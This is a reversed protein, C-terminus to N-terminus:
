GAARHVPEAAALFTEVDAMLAQGLGSTSGEYAFGRTRMTAHLGGRVNRFLNDGARVPYPTPAAGAPAPSVIATPGIHVRLVDRENHLVLRTGDGRRLVGFATGPVPLEPFARHFTRADELTAGLHQALALVPERFRLTPDYGGPEWTSDTFWRPPPLETAWPQPAAGTLGVARFADALVVLGGALADMGAADLFGNRRLALEGERFLVQLLGPEGAARLWDGAAGGLLAAIMEDGVAPESQWWWGPLGFRELKVEHEFNQGGWQRRRDIRVRPLSGVAEPVHTAATTVPARAPPTPDPDILLGTPDHSNVWDKVMDEPRFNFFRYDETAIRTLFFSGSVGNIHGSLASLLTLEHFLIGPQGGPLTGRVANFIRDDSLPMVGRFGVFAGSGRFELGREAAYGQADWAPQGRKADDGDAWAFAAYNHETRPEKPGGGGFLRGLIGGAM